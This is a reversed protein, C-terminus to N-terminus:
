PKEDANEYVTVDVSDGDKVPLWDRLYEEAMIELMNDGHFNTSTRLILAKLSRGHRGVRCIEFSWDEGGREPKRRESNRLYFDGRTPHPEPLKVNLTGARLGRFGTRERIEDIVNSTIPSAVSVGSGVKGMLIKM